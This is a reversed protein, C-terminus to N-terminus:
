RSATQVPTLDWRLTIGRRRTARVFHMTSIAVAALTLVWSTATRAVLFTTLSSSLLLWTVVGANLLMVAAWLVSLQSFVRRTVPHTLMDPELPCFDRALRDILPRRAVTSILFALGVAGTAATPQIFYVFASGTALALATRITLVACGLLLMGPVRQRRVLRRALACYSWGLGALLAGRLGAVTLVVYFLVFPVIASEVLGPLAHRLSVLPSPLRFVVGHHAGVDDHDPAAAIPGASPTPGGHADPSSPSSTPTRSSLSPSPTIRELTDILPRSKHAPFGIEKTASQRGSRVQCKSSM